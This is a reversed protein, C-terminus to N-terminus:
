RTANYTQHQIEGKRVEKTSGFWIQEPVHAFNAAQLSHIHAATPLYQLTHSVPSPIHIDSFITAAPEVKTKNHADLTNPEDKTSAPLPLHLQQGNCM